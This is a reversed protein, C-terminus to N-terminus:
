HVRARARLYLLAIFATNPCFVSEKRSLKQWHFTVMKMIKYIGKSAYKAM